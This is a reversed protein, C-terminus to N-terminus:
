IKFHAISHKFAVVRAVIEELTEKVLMKNGTTLTIVTDSHREIIEVLNLNILIEEGNIRTLKIM